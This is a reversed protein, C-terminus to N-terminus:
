DLKLLVAKLFSDVFSRPVPVLVPVHLKRGGIRELLELESGWAAAASAEAVRLARAGM